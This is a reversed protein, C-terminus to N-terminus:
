VVVLNLTRAAHREGASRQRVLSDHCWVWRGKYADWVLRRAADTMGTRSTRTQRRCTRHCADGRTEEPTASTVEAPHAEAGRRVPRPRLRGGCRVAHCGDARRRPAAM